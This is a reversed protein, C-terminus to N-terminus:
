AATESRTGRSCSRTQRGDDGLTQDLWARVQERLAQSPNLFRVGGTKKGTDSWVMQGDGELKHGDGVSVSFRVKSGV